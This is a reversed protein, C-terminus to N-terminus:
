DKTTNMALLEIDAAVILKIEKEIDKIDNTLRTQFSNNYDKFKINHILEFLENELDKVEAVHPAPKTSNFHFTEKDSKTQSPNLFFFARWRINKVFIEVSRILETLYEQKPPIPINKMSYEFKVQEMNM